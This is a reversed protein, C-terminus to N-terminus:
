GSREAAYSVRARECVAALYEDAGIPADAPIFIRIEGTYRNRALGCLVASEGVNLTGASRGLTDRAVIVPFSDVEALVALSEASIPAVVPKKKARGPPQLLLATAAAGLAMTSAIQKKM